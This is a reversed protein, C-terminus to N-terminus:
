GAPLCRTGAASRTPPLCVLPPLSRHALWGALRGARWRPVPRRRAASPTLAPARSGPCLRLLAAACAQRGPAPRCPQVIEWGGVWRAGVASGQGARQRTTGTTQWGGCGRGGGTGSGGAATRYKVSCCSICSCRVGPTRVTACSTRSTPPQPAAAGSPACRCCPAAQPPRCRRCSRRGGRAVRGASVSCPPPRRQM